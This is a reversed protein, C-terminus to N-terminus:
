IVVIERVEEGVGGPTPAINWQADGVPSNVIIEFNLIESSVPEAIASPAAKVMAAGAWAWSTQSNVSPAV